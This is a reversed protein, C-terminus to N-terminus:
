IVFHSSISISAVASVLLIAWTVINRSRHRRLFKVRGMLEMVSWTLVIVLAIFSFAAIGIPFLFDSEWFAKTLPNTYILVTHENM